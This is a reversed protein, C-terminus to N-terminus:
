EDDDDEDDDEEEGSEWQDEEFEDEGTTNEATCEWGDMKSIDLSWMDDLVVDTHAIEVVGGLLWLTNKLVAMLPAARARPRVIDKSSWDIGVTAPSYLLESVKGGVRYTQMAKRVAFGRFHAQIRTAARHLAQQEPTMNAAPAAGGKAAGADDDEEADRKGKKKKPRLALPFWRRKVLDFQYLENFLESYVRDGGGERDLVGGFLVARDRHTVVGFSTRPNPAMGAKKVREWTGADLDFAWVDDHVVGKAGDDESDSDFAAASRKPKPKKGGAPPASARPDVAPPRKVVSFGGIVFLSRGHAVLQCGGRPSPALQGPPPGINEWRMEELDYCWLDNYYRTEKGTDYFGGFLYFKGGGPAVACRHGSRASPGGRSPLQEWAWTSWDLRWLDGYHKFTDGNRSTFEGGFVYLAGRTSIAQHSSRPPPSHPTRVEAWRSTRSDFVHVESYTYTKDTKRDLWEGGFLLLETPSGSASAPRPRGGGLKAAASMAAPPIPVLTAYVRASPRSDEIVQVATKM